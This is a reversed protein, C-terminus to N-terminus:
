AHGTEVIEGGEGGLHVHDLPCARESSRHRVETQSPQGEPHHEDLVAHAAGDGGVLLEAVLEADTGDDLDDLPRAAQVGRLPRSPAGGVILIYQAGGARPFCGGRRAGVELSDDDVM